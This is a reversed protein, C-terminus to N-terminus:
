QFYNKFINFVYNQHDRFNTNKTNKLFFIQSGFKNNANKKNKKNKLVFVIKLFQLYVIRYSLNPEQFNQLFIYPLFFFLVFSSHPEVHRSGIM